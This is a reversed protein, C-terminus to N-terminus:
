NVGKVTPVAIWAMSLALENVAKRTIQLEIRVYERFWNRM